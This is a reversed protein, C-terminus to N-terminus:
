LDGFCGMSNGTVMNGDRSLLVRNSFAGYVKCSQFRALVLRSVAERGAPMGLAPLRELSLQLLFDDM